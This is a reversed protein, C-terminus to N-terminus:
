MYKTTFWIFAGKFGTVIWHSAWESRKSAEPSDAAAVKNLVRLNQLPHIDAGILAMIARVKAKM